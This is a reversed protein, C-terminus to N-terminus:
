QYFYEDLSPMEGSRYYYDVSDEGFLDIIPLCMVGQQQNQNGVATGAMKISPKGASYAYYQFLSNSTFNEVFSAVALIIKVQPTVLFTYLNASTLLDSYEDSGHIESYPDDIKTAGIFGCVMDIRASLKLSTKIPYNFNNDLEPVTVLVLQGSYYLNEKIGGRNNFTLWGGFQPYSVDPRTIPSQLVDFEFVTSGDEANINNNDQHSIKLEYECTNEGKVWFINGDSLVIGGESDVNYDGDFSVNGSEITVTAYTNEPKITVKWKAKKYEDQANICILGGDLQPDQEDVQLKELAVELVNVTTTKGETNERSDDPRNAAIDYVGAKTASFTTTTGSAPDLTVDTEEGEVLEWEVLVPTESDVEKAYLTLEEDVAIYKDQPDIYFDLSIEGNLLYSYAVTGGEEGEGECYEIEGSVTAVFLNDSHEHGTFLRTFEAKGVSSCENFDGSTIATSWGMGPDVITATMDSPKTLTFKLDTNVKSIVFDVPANTVASLTKTKEVTPTDASIRSTYILCMCLVQLVKHILKGNRNECTKM